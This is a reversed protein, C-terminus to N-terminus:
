SSNASLEQDIEEAEEVTDIDKAISLGHKLPLRGGRKPFRRRHQYRVFIRHLRKALEEPTVVGQSLRLALRVGNSIVTYTMTPLRFTFLLKLDQLVLGGFIHSVILGLRDLIPRNRSKYALDFTRYVLPLRVAEPDAIVLHGPLLTRAPEGPLPAIRYKPKWASAGLKEKEEPALIAPFWFDLPAHHYYDEMLRHLEEEEPLIDCTTVAVPKGPCEIMVTEIAAQINGGFTSDTDVVRCGSREPGYMQAPGAIFIPDFYGSAKLRDLLVDIIPRGQVQLALGKPGELPHLEAGAEPLESPKADGGALVILPLPEQKPDVVVSPQEREPGM